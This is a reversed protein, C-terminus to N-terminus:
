NEALNKVTVESDGYHRGMMYCAWLHNWACDTCVEVSYCRFEDFKSALERVWSTPYVVNGSYRGLDDGYVYRVEKLSDHSCVPCKRSLPHGINRAARMLEPHADCIETISTIGSRFDKLVSRKALTYDIIGKVSSM